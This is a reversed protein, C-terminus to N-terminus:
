TEPTPWKEMAVDVVRLLQERTGGHQAQLAIGQIVVTYFLALDEPSVDGPLEESEIAREFQCQLIAEVTRRKQALDQRIEQSVEPSTLPAQLIFRVGMGQADTFMVVRERLLRGIGERVTGVAFYNALQKETTDAYWTVAKRYLDGKNGFTAYLSPRNIGMAECLDSLSAAEFGKESFVRTAAELAQEECFEKPRGRMKGTSQSKM